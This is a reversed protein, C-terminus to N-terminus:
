NQIIVVYVWCWTVYKLPTQTAFITDIRKEKKNRRELRHIAVIYTALIHFNGYVKGFKLDVGIFKWIMMTVINDIIPTSRTEIFHNALAHPAIKHGPVPCQYEHANDSSSNV